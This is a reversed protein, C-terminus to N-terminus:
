ALGVTFPVACYISTEPCLRRSPRHIAAWPMGKKQRCFVSVLPSSTFSPADDIWEDGRRRLTDIFCMQWPSWRVRPPESVAVVPQWHTFFHRAAHLRVRCPASGLAHRTIHMENWLWSLPLDRPRRGDHFLWCAARGRQAAAMCCLRCAWSRQLCVCVCVCERECVYQEEVCTEKADGDAHQLGTGGATMKCAPWHGGLGQGGRRLNLQCRGQGGQSGLAQGM